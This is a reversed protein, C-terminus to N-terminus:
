MIAVNNMIADSDLPEVLRRNIVVSIGDPDTSPTATDIMMRGLTGFVFTAGVGAVVQADGSFRM